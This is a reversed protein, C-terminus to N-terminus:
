EPDPQLLTGEPYNGEQPSIAATRERIRERQRGDRRETWKQGDTKRDLYHASERVKEEYVGLARMCM